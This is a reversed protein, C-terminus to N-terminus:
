TSTSPRGAAALRAVAAAAETGSPPPCWGSTGRVPGRHRRRPPPRRAGASGTAELASVIEAAHRPSGAKNLIVGSLRVEPDFTHLGHVIAAATRSVHGIDLVLVIPTRTLTAVHATSAFGEGGIQGDFLGMVGEVVAVEAPEPTAAGHLLLPVM